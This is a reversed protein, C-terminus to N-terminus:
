RTHRSRYFRKESSSSPLYITETAEGGAPTDSQYLRTIQNWNILDLSSDIFVADRYLISGVTLTGATHNYNIKLAGDSSDNPDTARVFEQLNSVGDGDFDGNELFIPNSTDSTYASGFSSTLWSEPLETSANTDKVFEVVFVTFEPSTHVGDSIAYKLSDYVYGPQTSGDSHAKSSKYSVEGTASNFTFVGNNSTQSVLNYTLDDGNADFGDLNFINAKPLAESSGRTIIRVYRDSGVPPSNVPYGKEMQCIDYSGLSAGRGDGHLQQFMIAELLDNAPESLNESSHTLGIAHGIEHTLVEEFSSLTANGSAGHNMVVHRDFARRFVLGDITGGSSSSIFGGSIGLTSDSVIPDYTDHLQIHITRDGGAMSSARMGFNANSSIMFTLSSAAAWADLANGVANLAEAQSIGPPLFQSDVHVQIPQATDSQILRGPVGDFEFFGYTSTRSSTAGSAAVEHVVEVPEPSGGAALETFFARQATASDAECREAHAQYASWTGDEGKSLYIFYQQDVQLDLSRTDYSTLGELHGGPYTLIVEAPVAKSESFKNVVQITAKTHVINTDPCFFSSMATVRGEILADTAEVRHQSCCESFCGAHSSVQSMLLFAALMTIKSPSPIM